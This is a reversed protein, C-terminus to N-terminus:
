WLGSAITLMALYGTIFHCAMTLATAVAAPAYGKGRSMARWTLGWSLPLLWMAWLQTYVGYGQWTYSGDEYGYGPASVLLPAVAAAAAATWRNWGLFRTGFYVAIPWLALLLYQFWLYAM